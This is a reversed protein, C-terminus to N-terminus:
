RVAAAKRQRLRERVSGVMPLTLGSFLFLVALGSLAPSVAEEAKLPWPDNLTYFIIYSGKSFSYAMGLAAAMSSLAFGAGSWPRIGWNRRATRGCMFTLEGCTVLVYSLYVLLYAAVKPDDVYATTFQVESRNTALFLPVMIALEVMAAFGRQFMASKLYEPRYALDVMTIQLAACWLIACVHAVLKGVNAIGTIDEAAQAVVPVACLVGLTCVSFAIAIAWTSVRPNGVARRTCLASVLLGAVTCTGFVIGDM